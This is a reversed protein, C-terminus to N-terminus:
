RIPDGLGPQEVKIVRAGLGGLIQTAFPGSLYLTLDLVLLGDLPRGIASQPNRIASQTPENSVTPLGRSSTPNTSRGSPSGPRSSPPSTRGPARSPTRTLTCTRSRRSTCYCSAM